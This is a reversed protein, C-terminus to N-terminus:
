KSYTKCSSGDSYRIIVLGEYDEDVEIGQMNFRGVETKTESDAIVGDVGSFDKEEINWFNYWPYVEEYAALSGKPVYLKTKKFNEQSFAPFCSFPEVIQSYIEELGDCGAFADTLSTVSSGITLSILSNCNEFAHGGISTVSNPITVSTLSSCGKFAQGCISSVSSGITVSTLSSCNEFARIGLSTVSAPITVSTLSSCNKFAESGISTVAESITVSTLGNCGKFTWDEISTVSNPITISTLNTCGAFASSLISTVSNPITISTLASCDEFAHARIEIITNPICVSSLDSCGMFTAYEISIVTYVKHNYIVQSPIKIDGSYLQGEKAIVAVTRNSDSLIGYAIGEVVFAFTSASAWLMAIVM